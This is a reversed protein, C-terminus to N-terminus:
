GIQDRRRQRAGYLHAATEACGRDALASALDLIATDLSSVLMHNQFAPLIRLIAQEVHDLQEPTFRDLLLTLTTLIETYNRHQKSEASVVALSELVHLLDGFIDDNYVVALTESNSRDVEQGIWRALLDRLAQIVILGTEPNHKASSVETWAVMELQQLGFAPDGIINHQSTFHFAQGLCDAVQRAVPRSEAYVDAVYDNTSVYTGIPTRIVVEAEGAAEDLCHAIHDLDIADVYGSTSTLLQVSRVGQL